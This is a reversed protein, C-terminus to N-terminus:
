CYDFDEQQTAVTRSVIESLSYSSQSDIGLCSVPRLVGRGGEDDGEERSQRYEMNKRDHSLGM